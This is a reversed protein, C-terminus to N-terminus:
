TASSTTQMLGDGQEKHTPPLDVKGDNNGSVSVMGSRSELERLGIRCTAGLFSASEPISLGAIDGELPM